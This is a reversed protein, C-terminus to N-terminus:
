LELKLRGIFTLEEKKSKPKRRKEIKEIQWGGLFIGNMAKFAECQHRLGANKKILDALNLTEEPIWTRQFKKTM